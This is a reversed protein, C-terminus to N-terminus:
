NIKKLENAWYLSTKWQKKYLTLFQIPNNFRANKFLKLFLTLKYGLIQQETDYTQKLLMLTPSPKPQIKELSWALVPKIRFGGIPAKLHLISPEPFYIVDIGSNRLQLGFDTDEGYGFELSKNFKLNESDSKKVISCGSGFITTQSITMHINKQEVLLCSFVVAKIGLEKSKKLAQLIFNAEIRIDDDALFIWESEAQKLAINRANCVGSQHTFTHKIIFPWMEITIFDLESTSNPIPNQEVIIVNKPLYTQARLDCLIEYLYGKRGITPIIVDVTAENIIKIASQVKIHNLNLNSNSRNKYFFSFLFPLVHFKREYLVMNLLLLFVWQTKYHQKVFRFLTYINAKPANSSEGAKLLKPESYCLLGLPMGIKAISNLHYDFDTDCAIKDKIANLVSAHIIGVISSMQWTPYTVKKNVNIFLSEDVYGIKSDFFNHLQSSFSLMMKNHHFLMEIVELNLREKVAANCWVIKEDPFQKAIDHLGSAITKTCDFEIKQNDPTV